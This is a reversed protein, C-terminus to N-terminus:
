KKPSPANGGLSPEADFPAQRLGPLTNDHVLAGRQGAFFDHDDAVDLNYVPQVPGAEVTESRPWAM